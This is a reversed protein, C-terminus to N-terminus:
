RFRIPKSLSGPACKTGFIPVGPRRTPTLFRAPPPPFLRSNDSPAPFKAPKLDAQSPPNYGEARAPRASRESKLDSVFLPAHEVRADRRGGSKQRAPVDRPAAATAPGGRCPDPRPGAESQPAVPPRPEPKLGLGRM